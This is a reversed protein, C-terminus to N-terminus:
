KVSRLTNKNNTDLIIGNLKDQESLKLYDTTNM